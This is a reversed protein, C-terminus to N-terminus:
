KNFNDKDRNFLWTFLGRILSIIIVFINKNKLNTEIDKESNEKESDKINNEEINENSEIDEKSETGYIIDLNKDLEEDIEIKIDKDIEIEVVEDSKETPSDTEIELVSDTKEVETEAKEEKIELTAGKTDVILTNAQTTPEEKKEVLELDTSYVTGTNAGEKYISVTIKNDKIIRVYLKSNKVWTPIKSGNAWTTTDSKIKVEDLLKFTNNVGLIDAVDNRVNDMTKNFKKFWTLVDGHNGGLGLKYSDAHCLITPVTVGNFEVTGHPDINYEKCIYATLECAEKYVKNFYTEDKYNDDCIEFQFWFPEVYEGNMKGNCSGKTGGGCGWPHIDFEGTLVTAISGDAIKGVFANVGAQRTTHNWDNKYANTGIVKLLETKNEDNDSPQVYRKINTNGAGTDHWLVGVPKGNRAAGKYWTSQTLYCRILNM